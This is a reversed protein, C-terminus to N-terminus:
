HKKAKPDLADRFADGVQNYCTITIFILLGPFVQIWWHEAMKSESILSGWSPMPRQIGFGLFSLTSETLIGSAVAFAGAVLVPAMANPLIHLFITRANSFGLAKAALAFEAERLRLFEGRVLRAVGTWRILAMLIVISFIPPIVKPDIFASVMLILFFAPICLVIEIFRSLVLDVAGGFYGAIAGVITGIIVLLFASILGVALSVRGGWLLRALFDRGARDTGLIHRSAANSEAEGYRVEVPLPPPLFGTVKDRVPVRAGYVYYGEESKESSKVWTPPRFSEAAHGEAFGYPIPPLIAVTEVIDGSTLAAKYGGVTFTPSGGVTSSWAIGALVPILLAVLWKPRRAQRIRVRDSALLV